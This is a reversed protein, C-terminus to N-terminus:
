RKCGCIPGFVPLRTTKEKAETSPVLYAAVVLLSPLTFMLLEM